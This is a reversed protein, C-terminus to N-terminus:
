DAVKKIKVRLSTLRRYSIMAGIDTAPMADTGTCGTVKTVQLIITAFQPQKNDNVQERKKWTSTKGGM